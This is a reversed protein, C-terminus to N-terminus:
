TPPPLPMSARLEFGRGSAATVAVTGGYREFRERMGTLGNGWTVVDAGLGDDRAHLTVAEATARLEIWLNAARAHRAANTVIEQVARLLAEARGPDDVLLPDSVDFHIRPGAPQVTLAQIAATLNPRSSDRLTSVVARVDSLLLRTIAHAQQVHEAVKGDSLRAAVDLQLSLGALHHGLTDHLDRSIRLRESTRSSEALLERTATLEANARALNNRARGESIALISSAAAFAQFGLAAGAFTVGEIAGGNAIGGVFWIFAATQVLIWTWIAPTHLFYPLQAAVIVLLGIGVGTGRLHVSTIANLMVTAVSEVVALAIPLARPVHGRRMPLRVITVVAAGYIFFWVFYYVAPMGAFRGNVIAAIPWLGCAMWTALAAASFWDFGRRVAATVEPPNVIAPRHPVAPTQLETM